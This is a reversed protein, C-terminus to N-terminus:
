ARVDGRHLRPAGGGRGLDGRDRRRLPRTRGRGTRRLEDRDADRRHWRPSTRSESREAEEVMEVMADATRRMPEPKSRATSTWGRASGRSRPATPRGDALERRRASGSTSSSRTRASTSSRSACPEIGVITKLGRALCVNPRGDLGLERVTPSVLAPDESEVAITRTSGGGAAIESLEVMCGGPATTTAGSTCRSRACRTTRDVVEDLLEDLTYADRTRRARSASRGSCRRSTPPPSRSRAKLVPRWQELGDGDVHELQKVDMLGDRVKVSADGGALPRVGRRERTRARARARRAADRRRRLQRRLNAVGLPPRDASRGTVAGGHERSTSSRRARRRRRSGRSTSATSPSIRARRPPWRSRRTTMCRTSLELIRSGDPYLWM